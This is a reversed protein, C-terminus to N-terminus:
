VKQVLPTLDDYTTDSSNESHNLDMVSIPSASRSLLKNLLKIKEDMDSHNSLTTMIESLLNEINADHTFDRNQKNSFVDHLQRLSHLVPKLLAENKLEAMVNGYQKKAAIFAPAKTSYKELEAIVKDHGNKKAIDILTKKNKTIQNFDAGHRALEAIVNVHGQRAASYAPTNNSRDQQNLDVGHRALEAIVNAHGTYAAIHAPPLGSKKSAQNLNAGCRALKAIVDAHGYQAAIHALTVGDAARESIEKTIPHNEKLENLKTTLPQLIKANSNTTILTTNFAIYPSTKFATNIRNYVENISNLHTELPPWQNIDMLIWTQTDAQYSLSIAHSANSLILGLNNGPNLRENNTIIENLYAKIENETYIGPESYTTALGGQEQLADSAALQSIQDANYQTFSDNFLDQHKGPLHYLILSDYFALIELYISDDDTLPEHNKLKKQAQHILKDLNDTKKAIDVIKNIRSIFKGQQNLLCAEIFKLATGHCLGRDEQTYGLKRGLNVLSWHALSM